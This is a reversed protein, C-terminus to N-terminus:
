VSLVSLSQSGCHGCRQANPTVRGHWNCRLCFVKMQVANGHALKPSRAVYWLGFLLGAAVLLATQGDIGYIEPMARM